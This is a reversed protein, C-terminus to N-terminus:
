PPASRTWAASNPPIPLFRWILARWMPHLRFDSAGGGRTGVVPSHCRRSGSYHDLRERQPRSVAQATCKRSWADAVTSILLFCWALASWM